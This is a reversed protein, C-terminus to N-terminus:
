CGAGERVRRGIWEAVPATVADGLAAYRRGDPVGRVLRWKGGREEYVGPGGLAAPATWGDPLGQLRECEVPTLRRVGGSPPAVGMGLSKRGIAPTADTEPIPTQIMHFGVADSEAVLAGSAGAVLARGDATLSRAVEAERWTEDDDSSAAGHAKAYPVAVLPAGRGTGDEADFGEATLSLTAAVDQTVLLPRRDTRGEEATLTGNEFDEVYYSPEPEADPILTEEPGIGGGAKGRHGKLTAAVGDVVLRDVEQDDLKHVAGTLASAIGGGDTQAGSGAAGAPEAGKKRRAASDRERGYLEPLIALAGSARPDAEAVIFIRRRRQPVGAFRSDLVRWVAVRDPGVCVGANRWGDPPVNPTYGTLEGLVTAFDSGPGREFADASLLGGVNEFLVWRPALRRAIGAFTFFLGSREGGLGRRRGAVSWDQCPVGGVLADVRGRHEDCWRVLDDDRLDPFIPRGPFRAALVDRRWPDRECQAVARWGARELGHDLGGIGSFTSLFTPGDAGRTTTTTM